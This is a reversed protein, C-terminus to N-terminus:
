QLSLATWFLAWNFLCHQLCREAKVWRQGPCRQTFFFHSLLSFECFNRSVLLLFRKTTHAFPIYFISNHLSSFSMSKFHCKNGKHLTSYSSHDHCGGSASWGASLLPYWRTLLVVASFLKFHGELFSIWPSFPCKTMSFNSIAPFFQLLFM